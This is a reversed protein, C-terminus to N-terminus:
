RLLLDVAAAVEPTRMMNGHTVDYHTISAVLGDRQEAPTLYIGYNTSNSNLATASAWAPRPDLQTAGALWYMYGIVITIFDLSAQKSHYARMLAPVVVERCLEALEDVLDLPDPRSADAERIRARVAEIEDPGFTSALRGLLGEVHERLMPRNARGPDLVILRPPEQWGGIRRALEGAYVNGACFGIVARVPRTSDRIDREWRDVQDAGTVGREHGYPVPATEWINVDVQLLDVLEHFTATPRGTAAFDATVVLEDRDSKRLVHHAQPTTM